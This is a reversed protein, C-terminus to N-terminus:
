IKEIENKVEQWFAVEKITGFLHNLSKIIENVSILACQKALDKHFWDINNHIRLMKLVLEDSKEKPTM